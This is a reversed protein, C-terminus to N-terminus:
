INKDFIKRPNLILNKIMINLFNHSYNGMGMEAGKDQDGIEMTWM